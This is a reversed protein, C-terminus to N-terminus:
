LKKIIIHLINFDSYNRLIQQKGDQILFEFNEKKLKSGDLNKSLSLSISKILPSDVM